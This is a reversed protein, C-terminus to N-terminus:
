SYTPLHTYCWTNGVSSSRRADMYIMDMLKTGTAPGVVGDAELGWYSQFAKLARLTDSGFQGDPYTWIDRNDMSDIGLQVCLAPDGTAGYRIYPELTWASAPSSSALVSALALAGVTTALRAQRGVRFKM